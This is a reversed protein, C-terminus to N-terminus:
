SVNEVGIRGEKVMTWVISNLVHCMTLSVLCLRDQQMQVRSAFLSGEMLQVLEPGSPTSAKATVDSPTSSLLEGDGRTIFSSPTPGNPLHCRMLHLSDARSSNVESTACSSRGIWVGRGGSKMPLFTPLDPRERLGAWGV